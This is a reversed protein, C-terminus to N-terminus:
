AITVGNNYHKRVTPEVGSIVIFLFSITYGFIVFYTKTFHLLSLHLGKM